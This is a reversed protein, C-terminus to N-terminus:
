LKMKNNELVWEVLDTFKKFGFERYKKNSNLYIFIGDNPKFIYKKNKYIYYYLNEQHLGYNADYFFASIRNTNRKDLISTGFATIPGEYKLLDLITPLIDIQSAFIKLKTGKIYKPAYVLFVVQNAITAIKEPKMKKWYPWLMTHDGVLIFITRDFWKAKQIKKFFSKLVFDTYRITKQFKTEGKLIKKFKKPVVFPYHTSYTIVSGFFPEPTKSLLDAFKQFLEFDSIGDGTKETDKQFSKIDYFNEIGHKKLFVYKNHFEKYFGSLWLTRYGKNKLIEPLCTMENLPYEYYIMGKRFRPLHSCQISLDGRVTQHSNAYFNRVSVSKQALSDLFPMKSEKNDGFFASEHSMFSELTILVVNLNQKNHIENKYISFKHEPPTVIKKLVLPNKDYDREGKLMKKLSNLGPKNSGKFFNNLSDRIMLLVVNSQLPNRKYGFYRSGNAIGLLLFSLLLVALAKFFTNRNKLKLFKIYKSFYILGTLILFICPIIIAAFKWVTPMYFLDFFLRLHYYKIQAQFAEYYFINGLGIYIIILGSLLIVTWKLKRQLFFQIPNFLLALMSSTFIDYLLGVLSYELPVIGPNSFFYIILGIRAPFLFFFFLLFAQLYNFSILYLQRM